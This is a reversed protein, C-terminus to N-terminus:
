LMGQIFLEPITLSICFSTFETEASTKWPVDYHFAILNALDGM